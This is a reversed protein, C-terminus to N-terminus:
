LVLRVVLSLSHTHAHTCAHTRTHTHRHTCIRMLTVYTPTNYTHMCAHMQTFMVLYLTEGHYQLACQPTNLFHGRVNCKPCWADQPGHAFDCRYGRSCSSSHYYICPYSKNRSFAPYAPVPYSPPPRPAPPGTPIQRQVTQVPRVPTTPKDKCRRQLETLIRAHREPYDRRFTVFSIIANLHKVALHKQVFKDLKFSADGKSAMFVALFDSTDGKVGEKTVPCYYAPFRAEREFEQRFKWSLSKGNVVAANSVRIVCGHKELIEALEKCRFDEPRLDDEVLIVNKTIGDLLHVKLLSNPDESRKVFDEPFVKSWTWLDVSWCKEIAVMLISKYEKACSAVVLCGPQEATHIEKLMMSKINPQSGEKEAKPTPKQIQVKLKDKEAEDWLSDKSSPSTCLLNGDYISRSKSMTSNLRGVDIQVRPDEWCIFQECTIVKAHKSLSHTDVFTHIVPLHDDRKPQAELEGLTCPVESHVDEETLTELDSTLTATDSELTSDVPTSPTTAALPLWSGSRFLGSAENEQDTTTELPFFCSVSLTDCVHTLVESIEVKLTTKLLFRALRM